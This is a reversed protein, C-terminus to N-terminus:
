FYCQYTKSNLSTLKFGTHLSIGAIIFIYGKMLSDTIYSERFTEITGDLAMKNSASCM